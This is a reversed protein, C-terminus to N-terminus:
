RGPISVLIEKNKDLVTKRGRSIAGCENCRYTPYKGTNTYFYKDITLNTSNCHSCQKEKSDNYLSTNAHSKVWPRLKLYVLELIEVDHKNYYEMEALAEDDGHICKKWLEFTTGIKQSIGFHKAISDLNNYTFGFEKKAIQLTDIVKFNSPPPFGHIIFRTKINPIDFGLANHCIVIDSKQIVNWLSLTIREDDEDIAEEGSLRDSFVEGEELWKASWSLMFWDSIMKDPTITAKWVQTSFIFAQCPSTEIDLVLIRPGAYTPEANNTEVKHRKWLFGGSYKNSDAAKRITSEDFGLDRAAQTTSQYKCIFKGEESYKYVPKSM